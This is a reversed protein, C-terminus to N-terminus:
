ARLYCNMAQDHERDFSLSHGYALWGYGFNPNVTTCKYFYKRALQHQGACYYYCGICYWTIENEPSLTVLKHSLEYLDVTKKMEVLCGIYILLCDDYYGYKSVIEDTIQFAENIQGTSYLRFAKATQVSLDSALSKELDGYKTNTEINEIDHYDLMLFIVDLLSKDEVSSEELCIKISKVSMLHSKLAFNVAECSLPNM